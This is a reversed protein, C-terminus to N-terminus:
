RFDPSQSQGVASGTLRSVDTELRVAYKSFNAISNPLAMERFQFYHQSYVVARLFSWLRRPFKFVALILYKWFIFRSPHLVGQRLITISLARMEWYYPVLLIRSVPPPSMNLFYKYTRTLYAEPEYLVEYVNLFEKAIQEIPRAPVFNVASFVNASALGADDAPLLRDEKKLRHWLATGPVAQAAHAIIEPINNRSAFDIIRRDVGPSEGDLGVIFSGIIQLGARNITRCAEDIDLAANQYKKFRELHEKELSEIGLFVKYFGSRVMLDLMATDKSLNLSVATWFDFPFDREKMWLILQPLLQKTKTPNGIFNDDVIHVERRWGLEYLRQLEKLFNQVPKTRVKHGLMHTIYCFECQFPCGRSFQVTMQAYADMDLLDYRPIPTLALDPRENSELLLSSEGNELAGVLRGISLEAEGRVVIDAGMQLTEGAYQYVFPGGVVVLKRRNRAERIIELLAQVQNLLTSMASIFVVDCRRWDDETLPRVAMDVLTLDWDAPLFGAVTILGLPPMAAKKGLMGMVKDFSFLTDTAPPRVLLVRM